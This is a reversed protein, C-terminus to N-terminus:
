DLTWYFEAGAAHPRAFRSLTTRARAPDLQAILAIEATALPERAWALIEAVTEPKPRRELEPALNAIAAEYAEVPNFGPVVATAATDSRALM